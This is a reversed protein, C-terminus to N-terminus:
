RSNRHPPPTGSRLAGHDRGKVLQHAKEDVRQHQPDVHGAIGGDGFQQGLHSRAAQGGVLVLIHGELHDHVPEVGSSRQGM